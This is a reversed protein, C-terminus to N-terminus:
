WYFAGLVNGYSTVELFFSSAMVGWGWGLKDFSNKEGVAKNMKATWKVWDGLWLKILNM